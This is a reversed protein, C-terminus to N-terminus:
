MILAQSLTKPDYGNGINTAVKYDTYAAMGSLSDQQQLVM